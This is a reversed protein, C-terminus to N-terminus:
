AARDLGPFALNNARDIASQLREEMDERGDVIAPWFFRGESSGLGAAIWPPFQPYRNSGWEQGLLYHYRDSGLQITAAGRRYTARIGRQSGKSPRGRPHLERYRKKADNAIPRGVARLEKDFAKRWDRGLKRLAKRMEEIGEVVFLTEGRTFQDVM